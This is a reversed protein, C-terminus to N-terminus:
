PTVGTGITGAQLGDLIQQVLRQKGESLLDPNVDTLTLPSAINQGGKGAVLDPFIKQLAPLLEPKLSAVWNAKLDVAPLSEGIMYLGRDALTYLFDTKAVGPYVYVVSVMYSQFPVGYAALQDATADGPIEIHVPYTYFPPFGVQCLGCYYHMGNSFAEEAAVGQPDDKLTAIGIRYDQSLMAATYGALFAAQDVPQGTSALTSLNPASALNAIGVALFQVQPAAAVLTALGPDPPYAIVVKLAPGELRLDDPGMTNLVQFRMHDAQTMAYITAELQSAQDQAMDAPIVLVALPVEPTPTLATTPVPSPLQTAAPTGRGPLSCGALVLCFLLISAFFRPIIKIRL